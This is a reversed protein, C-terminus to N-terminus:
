SRSKSSKPDLKKPVCAPFAIKPRPPASKRFEPVPFGNPLFWDLGILKRLFKTLEPYDQKEWDNVDKEIRFGLEVIWHSVLAVIQKQIEADSLSTPKRDTPASTELDKQIEKHWAPIVTKVVRDYHARAHHEIRLRLNRYANSQQKDVAGVINDNIEKAVFYQVGVTVNIGCAKVYNCGGIPAVEWPDIPTGGLGPTFKVVEWAKLQTSTLSYDPSGLKPVSLNVSIAAM